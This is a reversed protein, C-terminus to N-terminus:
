FTKQALHDQPALYLEATYLLHVQVELDLFLRYSQEGVELVSFLPAETLPGLYIGALGKGQVRSEEELFELWTERHVQFSVGM